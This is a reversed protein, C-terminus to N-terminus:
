HRRGGASDAEELAEVKRLAETLALVPNQLAQDATGPLGRESQHDEARLVINNEQKTKREHSQKDRLGQANKTCKQM